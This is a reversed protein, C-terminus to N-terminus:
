VGPRIPLTGLKVQIEITRKSLEAWGFLGQFDKFVLHGKAAELVQHYPDLNRRLNEFARAAMEEDEYPAVILTHGAGVPDRYVASAAFRKGDLLLVDGDGLTYVAQLSYPGRLLLGSGPVQNEPPLIDLERVPEGPSIAAALRQALSTMVPLLDERGSFNNIFIFYNNKLVAFQFRDGSNRADIGPLPTERSCKLLYIGLASAANEMRYAEVAIEAGAGQYKQVQLDIFGMELFLEAGGDIVNYLASPGYTEIPGSRKWGSFFGNGPFDMARVPLFLMFLLLAVFCNKVDRERRRLLSKRRTPSAWAWASPM